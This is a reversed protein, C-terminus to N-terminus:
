YGISHIECVTNCLQQQACLLRMFVRWVCSLIATVYSSVGIAMRYCLVLQGAICVYQPVIFQLRVRVHMMRAIKLNHTFRSITHSIQFQLVGEKM